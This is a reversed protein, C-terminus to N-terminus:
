VKYYKLKFPTLNITIPLWLPDISYLLFLNYVVYSGNIGQHINYGVITPKSDENM